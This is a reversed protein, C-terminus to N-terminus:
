KVKFSDITISAGRRSADVEYLNIGRSDKQIYIGERGGKEGYSYSGDVKQALLTRAAVTPWYKIGGMERYQQIHGLEHSFHNLAYKEYGTLFSGNNIKNLASDM